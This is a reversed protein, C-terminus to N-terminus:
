ESETQPLAAVLVFDGSQAHKELQEIAWRYCKDKLRGHDHWAMVDFDQPVPAALEMDLPGYKQSADQSREFATVLLTEFSPLVAELDKYPKSFPWRRRARKQWAALDRYRVPSKGLPALDPRAIVNPGANLKQMQKVPLPNLLSGDILFQGEEDIFPPLLGPFTWNARIAVQMNGVTHVHAEGTSLNASASYFPIPMDALDTDPFRDLILKDLKRQKYLSFQPWTKRRLAGREVMVDTILQDTDDPDMGLALCAAVAAGAGVGAFCDPEFGAAQVAKFIGLSAAGYIGRGSAFFGTSQGLLFRALREYDDQSSARLHHHSRVPRYELWRRTGAITNEYRENHFLALRCADAGRMEFAMEEVANLPVPAGLRGGDHTGVLCIEDADALARETWPTTESDALLLIVEFRNEQEKLWHIVQPDDLAIGGPMDQGLGESSLLQCDARREISGSLKKILPTPITDGGAPLIALSKARGLFSRPQAPVKDEVDTLLLSRMVAQWINPATQALTEFSDWDLKLAISNRAASISVRQQERTFFAQEALVAGPGLEAWAPDSAYATTQFRGSIVIFLADPVEGAKVLTEGREVTELHCEAYLRKLTEDPILRFARVSRLWDAPTKQRLRASGAM